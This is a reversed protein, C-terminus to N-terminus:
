DISDLAILRCEGNEIRYLARQPLRLDYYGGGPCAYRVGGGELTITAGTSCGGRYKGEVSSAGIQVPFDRGCMELRAREIRVGPTEVVVQSYPVPTLTLGLFFLAVLALITLVAAAAIRKATRLVGNGTAQRDPM